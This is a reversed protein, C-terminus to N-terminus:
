TLSGPNSDKGLIWGAIDKNRRRDVTADAGGHSGIYQDEVVAAPTGNHSDTGGVFGLKYPNRTLERDYELGKILAARVFDDKQFTRESYDQISDANEFGAFEDAPWFKRHVESNGKVQMIEILREFHSRRE